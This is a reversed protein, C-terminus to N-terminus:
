PEFGPAHYHDYPRLNADSAFTHGINFPSRRLMAFWNSNQRNTELAYGVFPRDSEAIGDGDDPLKFAERCRKHEQKATSGPVRVAYAEYQAPLPGRGKFWEIRTIKLHVYAKDTGLDLLHMGTYKANLRAQVQADERTYVEWDEYEDLFVPLARNTGDAAATYWRQVAKHVLWLQEHHM